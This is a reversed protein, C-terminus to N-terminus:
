IDKNNEVVPFLQEVTSNLAKAILVATHANPVVKGYEYDQYLRESVGVKQAVQAQTIGLNKRLEKLKPKLEDERGSNLM